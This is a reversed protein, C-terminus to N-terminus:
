ISTLQKTGHYSGFFLRKQKINGVSVLPKGTIKSYSQLFKSFSYTRSHPKSHRLWASNSSEPNGLFLNEFRIRYM